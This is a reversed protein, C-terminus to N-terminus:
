IILEDYLKKADHTQLIIVHESSKDIYSSKTITDIVMEETEDEIKLTKQSQSYGKRKQPEYIIENNKQQRTSPAMEKYFNM